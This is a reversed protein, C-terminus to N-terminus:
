KCKEVVESFGTFQEKYKIDGTHSKVWKKSPSVLSSTLQDYGALLAEQYAPWDEWSQQSKPVIKTAGNKFPFESYIKGSLPEVVTFHTFAGYVWSQGVNNESYLVKKFGRLDLHIEFDAEPVTLNFVAGDSFAAAMKNGIAHGKTYPLLLVRQNASLYESFSQALYTKAGQQTGIYEPFKEAVEDSLSVDSVKLTAGYTAEVIASSLYNAFEDVLDVEMEGMLLAKVVSLKQEESYETESTDIYQVSMPVSGIISMTEYDFYLALASIEVLLKELNGIKETTVLERTLALTVVTSSGEDLRALSGVKLDIHSAKTNLVVNRLRKELLSGSGDDSEREIKSVYPFQTEIKSYEVLYSVGAYSVGTAAQVAEAFSLVSTVVIITLRYAITNIGSSFATAV